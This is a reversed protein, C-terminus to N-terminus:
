VILIIQHTVLPTPFSKGLVSLHSLWLIRDAGMDEKVGNRQKTTATLVTYARHAVKKETRKYESSSGFERPMIIRDGKETLSRSLITKYKKIM